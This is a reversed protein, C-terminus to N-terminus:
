PFQWRDGAGGTDGEFQAVRKIPEYEAEVEHVDGVLSRFYICGM